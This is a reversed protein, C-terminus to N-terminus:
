SPSENYQFGEFEYEFSNVLINTHCGNCLRGYAELSTLGSSCVVVASVGRHILGCVMLVLQM